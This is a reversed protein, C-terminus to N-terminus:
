VIRILALSPTAGLLRLRKAHDRLNVKSFTPLGTPLQRGDAVGIAYTVKRASDRAVGVLNPDKSAVLGVFQDKFTTDLKLLEASVAGQGFLHSLTQSGNYRKVHILFGDDHLLDCVELRDGDETRCLQKDCNLLDTRGAAAQTNYEGEKWAVKWDTLALAGTAIDIKALDADLKTTYAENLRFWRGLTLIFRVARESAEFVLWQRVPLLMSAPTGDASLAQIKTDKLFGAGRKVKVEALAKRLSELTPQTFSATEGRHSVEFQDVDELRVDDPPAFELVHEELGAVQDGRPVDEKLVIAALLKDLEKVVSEQSRLPVLSDVFSFQEKVDGASVDALMQKLEAQVLSLDVGSRFIISDGAVVPGGGDGETDLHGILKRVFEGELEVGFDRIQAGAPVTVSQTRATFDIRRSRLEQVSEPEFRRAAVRLGFNAEVADWELASSGYGFCVAFWRTEVPLFIILRHPTNEVRDAGPFAANLQEAWVPRRPEGSGLFAQAGKPAKNTTGLQTLALAGGTRYKARLAEEVDTLGERLLYCNFRLKPDKKKARSPM